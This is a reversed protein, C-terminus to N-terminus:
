DSARYYPKAALQERRTIRGAMVAEIDGVTRPCNTLNEIGTETILVCDELRVGGFGRFARLADADKIFPIFKPDTTLEDVLFDVFYVGPEVTIVMGPELRKLCRLSKYGLETPRAQEMGFPIGGVDHTDLGILHGLGHPMFRAALNVERSLMTEINGQLIGRALFRELIVRYSLTHMDMWDIGPGMAAM